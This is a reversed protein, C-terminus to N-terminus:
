PQSEIPSTTPTRKGKRLVSTTKRRRSLESLRTDFLSDKKQNSQGVDAAIESLHRQRTSTSTGSVSWHRGKGGKRRSVSKRTSTQLAPMKRRRHTALGPERFWRTLVCFPEADSTLQCGVAQEHWHTFLGYRINDMIPDLEGCTTGSTAGRERWMGCGGPSCSTLCGSCPWGNWGCM